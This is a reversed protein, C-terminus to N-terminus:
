GKKLTILPIEAPALWRIPPGWTGSGSTVYFASENIRYLGYFYRYFLKTFVHFPFLQGKHTHGSFVLYKGAAAIEKYFVPQHSLLVTFKGDKHKNLVGTVDERTMHETHIDGLGILRLAGADAATNRLLKIGFAKYCEMSEALGYYYEHNGLVGFLGLRSEIRGTQGAMSEMCTLGPDILDGTVLVLDPKAANIRDVIASFQRLKWDSDVHMDSIQAIKFGELEPPLDSFTVTVEKLCPTRQGGYIGCALIAALLGLTLVAYQGPQFWSAKKLLLAALDSAAFIFAAILIVGMWAYGAAYVADLLPGHWHRKLFMTLPSIFAAALLALRLWQAYPPLISFSRCLWRAAYFHLGVYSVIMIIFVPLFHYTKM